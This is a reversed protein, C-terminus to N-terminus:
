QNPPPNAVKGIGNSTKTIAPPPLPPVQDAPPAPAPFIADNVGVVVPVDETVTVGVKPVHVPVGTVNVILTFGTGVTVKSKDDTVGGQAYSGDIVKGVPEGAPPVKEPGPTLPVFKL